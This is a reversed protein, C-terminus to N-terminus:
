GFFGVSDGLELQRDLSVLSVPDKRRRDSPRGVNFWVIAAWRSKGSRCWAQRRWLPGNLGSVARKADPEPTTVAFGTGVRILPRGPSLTRFPNFWRLVLFCWTEQM